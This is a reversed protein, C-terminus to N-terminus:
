ASAYDEYPQVQWRAISDPLWRQNVYVAGGPLRVQHAALGGEVVVAAGRSGFRGGAAGVLLCFVDLDVDLVGRCGVLLGDLLSRKEAHAARAALVGPFLPSVYEACPKWARQQLSDLLWTDSVVWCGSAMSVLLRVSRRPRRGVVFIEPSAVAGRASSAAPQDQGAKRQGGVMRYVGLVIVAHRVGARLAADGSTSALGPRKKRVVSGAAKSAKRARAGGSWGRSSADSICGNKDGEERVDEDGVVEDEEDGVVERDEDGVVEDDADCAVEEDEDGVVEDDDDGVEGDDENRVEEDDEHRVEVDDDVRVEGEYDDGVEGDSEDGGEGDHDDGVERDDEDGVIGDDEDDEGGVAPM